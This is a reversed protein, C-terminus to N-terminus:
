ALYGTRVLNDVTEAGGNFDSAGVSDGAIKIGSLTTISKGPQVEYVDVSKPAALIAGLDPAPTTQLDSLLAELQPNTLGSTKVDLDIAAIASILQTKNM